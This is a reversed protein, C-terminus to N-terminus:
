VRWYGLHETRNLINRAYDVCRGEKVAGLGGNYAQLIEVINGNLKAWLWRLHHCVWVINTTPDCLSPLDGSFGEERAVAGMIQGLGWSTKQHITETAATIHLSQAWAEPKCLWNFTPEYRTAWQNLDSEHTLISIFVDLPIPCQAKIFAYGVETGDKLVLIPLAM